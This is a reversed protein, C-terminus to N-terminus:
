LLFLFTLVDCCADFVATKLVVYFGKQIEFVTKFRDNEFFLWRIKLSRRLTNEHPYTVKKTSIYSVLVFTKSFQNLNPLFKLGTSFIHVNLILTSVPQLTQAVEEQYICYPNWTGCKFNVVHENIKGKSSLTCCKKLSEITISM